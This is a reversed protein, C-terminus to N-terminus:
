YCLIIFLYCCCLATSLLPGPWFTTERDAADTQRKVLFTQKYVVDYEVFENRFKVVSRRLFDVTGTFKQCLNNLVSKIGSENFRM